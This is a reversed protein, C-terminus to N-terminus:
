LLTINMFASDGWFPSKKTIAWNLKLSIKIKNLRFGFHSSNNKPNISCFCTNTRLRIM